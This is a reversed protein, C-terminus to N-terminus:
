AEDLYLFGDCAAVMERLAKHRHGFGYVLLGAEQIRAALGIFDGDDSVICMGDVCRAHILDMADMVLAFDATNRGPKFRSAQQPRIRWRALARRWSRLQPGTWDGFARCVTPRGLMSAQAMVDAARRASINEADILVALRPVSLTAAPSPFPLPLSSLM